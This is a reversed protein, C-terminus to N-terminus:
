HFILKVNKFSMILAKRSLSDSRPIHRQFNQFSKSSSLPIARTLNWAFYTRQRYSSGLPREHRLDRLALSALSFSFSCNNIEARSSLYNLKVSNMFDPAIREEKPAM